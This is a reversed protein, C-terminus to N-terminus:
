NSLKFYYIIILSRYASASVKEPINIREDAFYTDLQVNHAGSSKEISADSQARKDRAKDDSEYAQNVTM